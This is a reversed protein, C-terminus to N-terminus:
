DLKRKLIDSKVGPTDRLEGPITNFLMMKLAPSNFIYLQNRVIKSCKVRTVNITQHRM